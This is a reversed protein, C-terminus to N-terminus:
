GSLRKILLHRRADGDYRRRPGRGVIEWGPSTYGCETCQTKVINEGFHFVTKHGRLGCVLQVLRRM